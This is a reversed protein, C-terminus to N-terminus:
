SHDGGEFLRLIGDPTLVFFQVAQRRPVCQGAAQIAAREKLLELELPVRGQTMLVGDAANDNIDVVELGYVVVESVRFAVLHQPTDTAGQTVDSSFGIENCAIAAFLKAEEKRM